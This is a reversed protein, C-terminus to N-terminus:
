MRSREREVALKRRIIAYVSQALVEVDSNPDDSEEMAEQQDRAGSSESSVARENGALALSPSAGQSVGGVASTVVDAWAGVEGSDGDASGGIWNGRQSGSDPESWAMYTDLPAPYTAATHYEAADSARLRTLDLNYSGAAEGSWSLAQGSYALPMGTGSSEGYLQQLVAKWNPEGSDFESDSWNSPRLNQRESRSVGAELPWSLNSGTQVAGGFGSSGVAVLTSSEIGPRGPGSNLPLAMASLSSHLTNAASRGLSGGSPLSRNAISHTEADADRSSLNARRYMLPAQGIMSAANSSVRTLGTLDVGSMIREIFAGATVDIHRDELLSAHSELVDGALDQQTQWVTSYDGQESEEAIEGTMLPLSVVVPTEYFVDSAEPYRPLADPHAEHAFSADAIQAALPSEPRNQAAVQSAEEHRAVVPPMATDQIIAENVSTQRAGDTPPVSHPSIKVGSESVRPAERKFWPLELRRPAVDTAQVHPSPPNNGLLRNFLSVFISERETLDTREDPTFNDVDQQTEVPYHSASGPQSATPEGPANMESVDASASANLPAARVQMQSPIPQLIDDGTAILGPREVQAELPATVVPAAGREIQPNSRSAASVHETVESRHPLLSGLESSFEVSSQNSRPNQALPREVPIHAPGTNRVEESRPRLRALLSTLLTPPSSVASGPNEEALRQQGDKDSTTHSEDGPVTRLAYQGSSAGPSAVEGDYGAQPKSIVQAESDVPQVMAEPSIRPRPSSEAGVASTHVVLPMNATQTHPTRLPALDEGPRTQTRVRDPAALSMSIADHERDNTVSSGREGRVRSLIFTLLGSNGVSREVPVRSQYESGAAAPSAPLMAPTEPLRDLHASTSTTAAHAISTNSGVAIDSTTVSANEAMASRLPLISVVRAVLRALLGQPSQEAIAQQPPHEVPSALDMSVPRPAELAATPSITPLMRADLDAVAASRHERSEAIRHLLHTGPVIDAKGDAAVRRAVAQVGLSPAVLPSGAPVSPAVFNMTPMSILSRPVVMPSPIYEVRVVTEPVFENGVTPPLAGSSQDEKPPSFAADMEPQDSQSPTGSVQEQQRVQPARSYWSPQRSGWDDQQAGHQGHKRLVWVYDIHSRGEPSRQLSQTSPASPIPSSQVGFGLRSAVQRWLSGASFSRTGIGAHPGGLRAMIMQVMRAAAAAAIPMEALKDPSSEGHNLKNGEIYDM